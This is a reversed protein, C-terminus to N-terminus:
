SGGGIRKLVHAGTRCWWVPAGARLEAYVAANHERCCPWVQYLIDMMEGQVIEAMEVVAEEETLSLLINGLLFINNAAGPIESSGEELAMRLGHGLTLAIDGQVIEFALPFIRRRTSLMIETLRAGPMAGNEVFVDRYWDILTSDFGANSVKFDLYMENSQLWERFSGEWDKHDSM